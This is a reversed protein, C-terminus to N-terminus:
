VYDYGGGAEGKKMAQQLPDDERAKRMRYAEMEEDTVGENGSALSNYKRKRDDGEPEAAGQEHLRKLAAKLKDDDLRLDDPVDTGWAPKAQLKPTSLM